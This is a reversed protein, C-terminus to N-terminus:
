WDLYGSEGEVAMVEEWLTMGIGSRLLGEGQKRLARLKTKHSHKCGVRNRKGM